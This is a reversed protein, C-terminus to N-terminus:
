FAYTSFHSPYSPNDAWEWADGLDTNWNILVMLRDQDDFIGRVYPVTGDDEHTIGRSEFEIGNYLNPVQLIEEVDYVVRFIPHTISIEVIVRDPSILFYLAPADLLAPVPLGTRDKDIRGFQGRPLSM